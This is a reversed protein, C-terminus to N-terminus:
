EALRCGDHAVQGDIQVIAGRGKNWFVVSGNSYKVGNESNIRRLKYSKDGLSVMASDRDKSYVVEVRAGDTCTFVQKAGTFKNGCGSVALSIVIIAPVLLGGGAHFSRATHLLRATAGRTMKPALQM